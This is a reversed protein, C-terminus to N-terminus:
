RGAPHRARARYRELTSLVETSLTKSLTIKSDVKAPLVLGTQVWVADLATRLTAETWSRPSLLGLFKLTKHGILVENRAHSEIVQQLEHKRKTLESSLKYQQKGRKSLAATQDFKGYQRYKDGQKFEVLLGSAGNKRRFDVDKIDIDHYSSITNQQEFWAATRKQLSRRAKQSATKAHWTLEVMQVAARDMFAQIEVPNLRLTNLIIRVLVAACSVEWSVSKLGAHIYNQGITASALPLKIELMATPAPLPETWYRIEM